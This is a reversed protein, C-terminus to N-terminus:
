KNRRKLIAGVANNYLIEYSDSEIPEYDFEKKGYILYEEEIKKDIWDEIKFENNAELMLWFMFYPNRYLQYLWKSKLIDEPSIIYIEQQKDILNNNYYDVIELYENEVEYKSKSNIIFLNEYYIDFFNLFNNLKLITIILALMYIIMYAYIIKKNKRLLIITGKFSIAIVLIWLLYYSKYFYYLSVYNFINGIKLVIMFLIEFILMTTLFDNKKSKIQKCIYFVLLPVFLIFNSIINSYIDGETGIANIGPGNKGKVIEKLYFYYIGCLFPLVLIYFVDITNQICYKKKNSNKMKVIMTIFIAVYVIPVFFYYTFFLGLNLLFLILVIINNMQKKLYYEISIIISIIITMGLSLYSFGSLESNLQYGLMYIIAFIAAIIYEKKKCNQVFLFYILIGSLYLIGLEFVISINVFHETNSIFSSLSKLLIGLNVYSGTMFTEFKNINYIDSSNNTSLLDSAKYFNIAASYHNSADTEGYFINFPFGFQMYSIIIVIILVIISVMVDQFKIYYKQIKKSKYLYFIMLLIGLILAISLNTLSSKIKITNFMFTIFINYCMLVIVSLSIWLLINEKKNTKKIFLFIIVAIIELFIYVISM